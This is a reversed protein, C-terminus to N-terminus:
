RWGDDPRETGARGGAAALASLLLRPFQPSKVVALLVGSVTLLRWPRTVAVLAGTAAAVALFQWPSRRAFRSLLSTALGLGARAPHYRWWTGAAAKERGFWGAPEAQGPRDSPEGMQEAIAQRSRALRAAADRYVM